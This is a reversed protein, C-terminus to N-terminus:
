ETISDTFKTVMKEMKAMFREIRKRDKPDIRDFEDEVCMNHLDEGLREKWDKEIQRRCEDKLEDIIKSAYLIYKDKTPEAECVIKGAVTSFPNLPDATIGGPVKVIVTSKESPKYGQEAVFEGVEEGLIALLASVNEEDTKHMYSLAVAHAFEQPAKQDLYAQLNMASQPNM